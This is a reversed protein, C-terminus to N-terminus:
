IWLQLMLLKSIKRCIDDWLKQFQLVEEKRLQLFVFHKINKYKKNINNKGWWSIQTERDL